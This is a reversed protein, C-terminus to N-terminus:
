EQLQMFCKIKISCLSMFYLLIQLIKGKIINELVVHDIAEKVSPLTRMSCTTLDYYCLLEEESLSTLNDMDVEAGGGVKILGGMLELSVEGKVDLTKQKDKTSKVHTLMYDDAQINDILTNNVGLHKGFLNFGNVCSSTHCNWLDGIAIPGDDLCPLTFPRDEVYM